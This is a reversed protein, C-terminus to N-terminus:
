SARAADTPQGAFMSWDIDPRLEGRTVQRETLREIAVCRELPVKRKGGVWESVTPASVGLATALALTGGVIERAREIATPASDAAGNPNADPDM